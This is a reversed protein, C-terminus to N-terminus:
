PEKIEDARTLSAGKTIFYLSKFSRFEKQKIWGCLISIEPRDIDTRILKRDHRFRIAQDISQMTVEDCTATLGAWPVTGLRMKVTFLQAYSKRFKEWDHVLHLEDVVVLAVHSRFTFNRLVM